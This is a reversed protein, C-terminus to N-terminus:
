KVNTKAAMFNIGYIGAFSILMLLMPNAKMSMSKMAETAIPELDKKQKETLQLDEVDVKDKSVKNNVLTIILPFLLDVLMIFLAGDILSGSIQMEKAPPNLEQMTKQPNKPLGKKSGRTFYKDPNAKAVDDSVRDNLGVTISKKPEEQVTDDTVTIPKKFSSLYADIEDVSGATAVNKVEGVKEETTELVEM